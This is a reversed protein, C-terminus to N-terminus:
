SGICFLTLPCAMLHYESPRTSTSTSAGDPAADQPRSIVPNGTPEPLVGPPVASADVGPDVVAATSPLPTDPDAQAVATAAITELFITDTADGQEDV